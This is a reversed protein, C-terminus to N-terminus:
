HILRPMTCIRHTPRCKTHSYWYWSFRCHVADRWDRHGGAFGSQQINKEEQEVFREEISVPMIDNKPTATHRGLAQRM